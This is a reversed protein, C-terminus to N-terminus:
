SSPLQFTNDFLSQIIVAKFVFSDFYAVRPLKNLKNKGIIEKQRSQTYCQMHQKNCSMRRVIFHKFPRTINEGPEIIRIIRINEGPEIIRTFRM